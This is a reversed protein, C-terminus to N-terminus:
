VDSAVDNRVRACFDMAKAVVVKCRLPLCKDSNRESLNISFRQFRGPSASRTIRTRGGKTSSWPLFNGLKNRAAVSLIGNILGCPMVPIKSLWQQKSRATWSPNARNNPARRLAQYLLSPPWYEGPSSMRGSKICQCKDVPQAACSAEPENFQAMCGQPVFSTVSLKNKDM